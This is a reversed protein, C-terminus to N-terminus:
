LRNYSQKTFAPFNFSSIRAFFTIQEDGTLNQNKYAQAVAVSAGLGACVDPREGTWVFTRSHALEGSVM